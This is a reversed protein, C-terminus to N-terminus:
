CCCCCVLVSVDLAGIVFAVVVSGGFDGAAVAATVIRVRHRIFRVQIPSLARRGADLVECEADKLGEREGEGPNDQVEQRSARM